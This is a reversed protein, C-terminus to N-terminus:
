GPWEFVRVCVTASIGLGQSQTKQTHDLLSPAKPNKM